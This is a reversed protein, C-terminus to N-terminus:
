RKFHSRLLDMTEKLYNVVDEKPKKEDDYYIKIEFSYEGKTNRIVKVSSQKEFQKEEMKVEKSELM